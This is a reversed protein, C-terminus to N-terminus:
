MEYSVLYKEFSSLPFQHESPLTLSLLMIGRLSLFLRPTLNYLTTHTHTHTHTHTNTHTHTRTHTHESDLHNPNVFIVGLSTAPPFTTVALAFSKRGFQRLETSDALFSLNSHYCSSTYEGKLVVPSNTGIGRM